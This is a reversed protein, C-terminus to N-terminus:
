KIKAKSILKQTILQNFCFKLKIFISCVGHTKRANLRTTNEHHLGDNWNKMKMKMKMPMTNKINLETLQQLLLTTFKFLIGWPIPWIILLLGATPNSFIQPQM